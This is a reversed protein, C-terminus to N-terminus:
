NPTTPNLHVNMAREIIPSFERGDVVMRIPLTMEKVEIKTDKQPNRIEAQARRMEQGAPSKDLPKKAEGMIMTTLKGGGLAGLGGGILGGIAMGIPGGIAGIMAGAKAGALGGALAGGGVATARGVSGSKQYEAAGMALGGVAAGVGPIARLAGAGLAAGKATAFLGTGAAQSAALSTAGRALGSFAASAGLAILVKPGWDAFSRTLNIVKQILEMMQKAFTQGLKEIEKTTQEQFTVVDTLTKEEAKQQQFQSIDMGEGLAKAATEEDVGLISAIMQKQRRGMAQFNKGQLQFESRLIDLREESSARMIEVSNLQLGLQANLRGAVNASSEFTDFLETLDFAEKVTLGLQRAQFNLKRFVDLGRTGFRSITPGIDNLDQIVGQLPRGVEDSMDELSKAASAAADGTMGFGFNIRDLVPAFASTDVGLRKFRAAINQLVRQQKDGVLNFRTMGLSMGEIIEKGETLSIALGANARTIDQLNDKFDTLRGTGRALGVELDKTRHAVDIINKIFGKLSLVSSFSAGTLTDLGSKASDIASKFQGMAKEAMEIKKVNEELAKENKEIEARQAQLSETMRVVEKDADTLKSALAAYKQRLEEVNDAGEAEAKNLRELAAMAQKALRGEDELGDLLKDRSRAYEETAKKLEKTQKIIESIDDAM